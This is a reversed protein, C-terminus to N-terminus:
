FGRIGEPLPSAESRPPRRPDSEGPSSDRSAAPDPTALPPPPPPPPPDPGDALLPPPARPRAPVPRLRRAILARAVAAPRQPWRRPTPEEPALRPAPAAHPCRPKQSENPPFPSAPRLSPTSGPACSNFLGKAQAPYSFRVDGRSLRRQFRRM